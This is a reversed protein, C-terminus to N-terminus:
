NEGVRRYKTRAFNSARSVVEVQCDECDEVEDWVPEFEQLFVKDRSGCRLSLILLSDVVKHEVFDIHKGLNYEAFLVSAHPPCNKLAEMLEQVTM